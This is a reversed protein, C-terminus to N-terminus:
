NLEFPFGLHLLSVSVFLLDVRIQILQCLFGILVIKAPQRQYIGRMGTLFDSSSLNEMNPVTVTLWLSLYHLVLREVQMLQGLPPPGREMDSGSHM